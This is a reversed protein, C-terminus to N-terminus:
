EKELRRQRASGILIGCTLGYKEQLQRDMQRFIWQEEVESLPIKYFIEPDEQDNFRLKLCIGQPGYYQKVGDLFIQVTERDPSRLRNGFPDSYWCCLKRDYVSMGGQCGRIEFREYFEVTFFSRREKKDCGKVTSLPEMELACLVRAAERELAPSNGVAVSFLADTGTGTFSGECLTFTSPKEPIRIEKKIEKKALM